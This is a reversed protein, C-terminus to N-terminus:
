HFILEVSARGMGLASFFHPAFPMTAYWAYHDRINRNM